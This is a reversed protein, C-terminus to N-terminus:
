PVFYRHLNPLFVLFLLGFAPSLVLFVTSSKPVLVDTFRGLSRPLRLSRTVLYSVENHVTMPRSEPSGRPSWWSQSSSLGLKDQKQKSVLSTSVLSWSSETETCSSEFRAM